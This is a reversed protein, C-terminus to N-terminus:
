QRVLGEWGALSAPVRTVWTVLRLQLQHLCGSIHVLYHHNEELSLHFNKLSIEREAEWHNTSGCTQPLFETLSLCLTDNSRPQNNWLTYVSWLMM